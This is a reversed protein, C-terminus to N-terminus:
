SYVRAGGAAVLLAGPVRRMTEDFATLRHDVIIKQFQNQGADGDYLM